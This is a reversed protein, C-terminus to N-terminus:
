PAIAVVVGVVVVVLLADKSFQRHTHDASLM